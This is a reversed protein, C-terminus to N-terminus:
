QSNNTANSPLASSSQLNTTSTTPTTCSPAVSVAVPQPPPAAAISSSTTGSTSSVNNGTNSTTHTTAIGDAGYIKGAKKALGSFLENSCKYASQLSTSWEKLGIEDSNTMVVKGGDKTKLIICQESKIQVLDSFILYFKTEHRTRFTIFIKIMEFHM